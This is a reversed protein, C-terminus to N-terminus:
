GWREDPEDSVLYGGYYGNSDNRYELRIDGNTTRFVTQYVQLHDHGCARRYDVEESCEHGDWPEAGGASDEVAIIQADKVGMPPLTLHEIWSSSCCDGEVGYEKKSGDAFELIFKEKDASISVARLPRNLIKTFNM